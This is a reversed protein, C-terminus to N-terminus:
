IEKLNECIVCYFLVEACGISRNVGINARSDIVKAILRIWRERDTDAGDTDVGWEDCMFELNSM